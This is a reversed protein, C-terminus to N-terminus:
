NLCILLVMWVGSRKTYQTVETPHQGSDKPMHVHLVYIWSKSHLWTLKVVLHCLCNRCIGPYGLGAVRHKLQIAPMAKQRGVEKGEKRLNPLWVAAWTIRDCILALGGRQFLPTKWGTTFDSTRLTAEPEVHPPRPRWKRGSGGREWQGGWVARQDPGTGLVTKGWPRRVQKNEM